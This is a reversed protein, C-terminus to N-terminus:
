VCKTLLYFICGPVVAPIPGPISWNCPLWQAVLVGRYCAKESETWKSVRAGRHPEENGLDFDYILLRLSGWEWKLYHKGYTEPTVSSYAPPCKLKGTLWSLQTPSSLPWCPFWFSYINCIIVSHLCLPGPSLLRLRPTLPWRPSAPPPLRPSITGLRASHLVHHIPILAVGTGRLAGGGVRWRLVRPPNGHSRRRVGGGKHPGWLLRMVGGKSRMRMYEGMSWAVYLTPFSSPQHSDPTKWNLLLFLPIFFHTCRSQLMSFDHMCHRPPM